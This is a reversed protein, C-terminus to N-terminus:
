RKGFRRPLDRVLRRTRALYWTPAKAHHCAGSEASPERLLLERTRRVGLDAIPQLLEWCRETFGLPLRHRPRIIVVREAYQPAVQHETDEASRFLGGECEGKQAIVVVMDCGRELLAEYPANNTVAGDGYREGEVVPAHTYFPPLFNSALMVELPDAAENVSLIVSARDRLRTVSVFLPLTESARLREAGVYRRFAREHLRRWRFPSHERLLNTLDLPRMRSFFRWYSRLRAANGVAVAAANWAGGSVGLCAAPRVGLELLGEVVGVQFICRSAGGSFVFGVREAARLRELIDPTM